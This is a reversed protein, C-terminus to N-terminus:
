LLARDRHALRLRGLVRITSHLEWLSVVIKAFTFIEPEWIEIILTIGKSKEDSKSMPRRGSSLNLSFDFPIVRTRSINLQSSENVASSTSRKNPAESRLVSLVCKGHTLSGRVVCVRHAALGFIKVYTAGTDLAAFAATLPSYPRCLCRRRRRPHRRHGNLLGAPPPAPDSIQARVKPTMAKPPPM